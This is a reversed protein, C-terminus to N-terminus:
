WAAPMDAIPMNRIKLQDLSLGPIRLEGSVFYPAFHSSTTGISKGALDPLSGLSNRAAIIDGSRSKDLILWSWLPLSLWTLEGRLYSDVIEQPDTFQTSTLKL